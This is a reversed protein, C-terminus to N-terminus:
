FFFILKFDRVREIVLTQWLIQGFLLRMEHINWHLFIEFLKDMDMKKEHQYWNYTTKYFIAFSSFNYAHLIM